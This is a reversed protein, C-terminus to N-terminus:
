ALARARASLAQDTVSKVVYPNVRLVKYDIYAQKYAMIKARNVVNCWLPFM